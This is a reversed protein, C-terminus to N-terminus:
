ILFLDEVYELQMNEYILFIYNEFYCLKFKFDLFQVLYNNSKKLKKAQNLKLKNPKILMQGNNEMKFLYQM